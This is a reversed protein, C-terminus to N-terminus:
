IDCWVEKGEQGAKSNELKRISAGKQNSAAHSSQVKSGGNFWWLFTSLINLIWAKSPSMDLPGVSLVNWLWLISSTILPRLSSKPTMWSPNHGISFQSAHSPFCRKLIMYIDDSAPIELSIEVQKLTRTDQFPHSFWSLNWSWYIQSSLTWHFFDLWSTLPGSGVQISRLELQLNPISHM